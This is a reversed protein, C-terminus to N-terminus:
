TLFMKSLFGYMFNPPSVMGLGKKFILISCIKPDIAQLKVYKTKIRHCTSPKQFINFSLQLGNAKVEYLAKKCSLFLDPILREAENEAHNKFFPIERVVKQLSALSLHRTEKVEHIYNNTLWTTADYTKFKEKYKKGFKLIKLVFLAKLVLYFANEM